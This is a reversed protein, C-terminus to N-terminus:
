VSFMVVAMTAMVLGFVAIWGAVDQLIEHDSQALFQSFAGFLLGLATFTRVMGNGYVVLLVALVCFFICSCIAYIQNM